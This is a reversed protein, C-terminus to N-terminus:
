EQTAASSIPSTIVTYYQRGTVIISSRQGASGTSEERYQNEVIEVRSPINPSEIYRSGGSRLPTRLGTSENRYQNEVIEIRSPINPSETYRTGGSRLPTRLGTDFIQNSRRIPTSHQYSADGASASARFVDHETRRDNLLRNKRYVFKHVVEQVETRFLLKEEAPLKRVHPLLSKFFAEDEDDATTGKRVKQELLQLKKAEIDILRHQASRKPARRQPRTDGEDTHDIEAPEPIEVIENRDSTDDSGTEQTNANRSTEAGDPQLNGGSKRPKMHDKLFLLSEFHPWTTYTEYNLPAEDGSRGEPVKRLEKGFQNRVTKWKKKIDDTTVDEGLNTAIQRWLKETIVKNRYVKLTQNWLPTREFVLSILTEVDIAMEFLFLVRYCFRTCARSFVQCFPKVRSLVSKWASVKVPTLTKGHM